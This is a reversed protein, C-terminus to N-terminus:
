HISHMQKHWNISLQATIENLKPKNIRVVFSFHSRARETRTCSHREFIISSFQSRWKPTLSKHEQYLKEVVCVASHVAVYSSHNKEKNIIVANCHVDPSKTWALSQSTSVFIISCHWKFKLQQTYPITFCRTWGTHIVMYSAKIKIEQSIKVFSPFNAKASKWVLKALNSIKISRLLPM